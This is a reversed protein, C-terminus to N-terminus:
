RPLPVPQMHPVALDQLQLIIEMLGGAPGQGDNLAVLRQRLERNFHDTLGREYLVSCVSPPLYKHVDVPLPARAVACARQLREAIQGAQELTLLSYAAM